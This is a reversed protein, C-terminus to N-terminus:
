LKLRRRLEDAQEHTVVIEPLRMSNIRVLEDILPKADREYARRLERLREHLFREYDESM